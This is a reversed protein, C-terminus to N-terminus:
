RRLQIGFWRSTRILTDGFQVTATKPPRIHLGGALSRLEDPSLEVPEGKTEEAILSEIEEKTFVLGKEAGVSVLTAYLDQGTTISGLKKRLAEDRRMLDRLKHIDKAPM